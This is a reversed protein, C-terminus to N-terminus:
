EYQGRFTKVSRDFAIIKKDIGLESFTPPLGVGERKTPTSKQYPQGGTAKETEKLMM